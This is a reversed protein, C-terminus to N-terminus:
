LHAKEQADSQIWVLHQNYLLHELYDRETDVTLHEVSMGSDAIAAEVATIQKALPRYQDHFDDREIPWGAGTRSDKAVPDASHQTTAEAEAQRHCRIRKKVAM